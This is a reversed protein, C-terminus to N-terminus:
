SLGCPPSLSRPSPVRGQSAFRPLARRRAATYRHQGLAITVKAGLDADIDFALTISVQM